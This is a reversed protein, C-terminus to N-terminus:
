PDVARGQLGSRIVRNGVIHQTTRISELVPIGVAYLM